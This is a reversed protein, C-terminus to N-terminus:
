QQRASLARPTAPSKQVMAEHVLVNAAAVRLCPLFPKKLAHILADQFAAHRAVFCFPQLSCSLACAYCVSDIRCFCIHGCRGVLLSLLAANGRRECGCARAATARMAVVVGRLANCNQRREPGVDCTEQGDSPTVVLCM